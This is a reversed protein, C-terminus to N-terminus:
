KTVRRLQEAQLGSIYGAVLLDSGHDPRCLKLVPTKDDACILYVGDAREELRWHQETVHRTSM